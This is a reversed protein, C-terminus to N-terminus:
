RVVRGSRILEDVLLEVLEADFRRDCGLMEAASQPTPKGETQKYGCPMMKVGDVCVIRPSAGGCPACCVPLEEKTLSAHHKAIVWGDKKSDWPNRGDQEDFRRAAGSVGNM